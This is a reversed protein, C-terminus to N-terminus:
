KSWPSEQSSCLAGSMACQSQPVHSCFRCGRSVVCCHLSPVLPRIHSIPMLLRPRKVFLWGAVKGAEAGQRHRGKNNNGASMSPHIGPVTRTWLSLAVIAMAVRCRGAKDQLVGTWSISPSCYKMMKNKPLFLHKSSNFSKRLCSM